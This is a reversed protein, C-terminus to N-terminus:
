LFCGLVGILLEVNLDFILRVRFYLIYYFGDLLRFLFYKALDFGDFTDRNDVFFEFRVIILLSFGNLCVLLVKNNNPTPTNFNIQYVPVLIPKKSL